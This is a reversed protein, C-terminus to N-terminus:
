GARKDEKDAQIRENYSRYNSPQWIPDTVENKRRACSCIQLFSLGDFGIPEDLPSIAAPPYSVIHKLPLILMDIM